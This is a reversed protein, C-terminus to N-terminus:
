TPGASPGSINDVSSLIHSLGDAMEEITSNYSFVKIVEGHDDTVYIFSTHDFSYAEPTPGVVKKYYVKFTKAVAEIQAPMGALGIFSPYFQQVYPKLNETTDREPDVTIFIPQFRKRQDASLKELANGIAALNTPCVDPCYRYGFTIVLLKGPWSGTGAM